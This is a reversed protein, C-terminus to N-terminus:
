KAALYAFRCHIDDSSADKLCVVIPGSSELHFPLDIEDEFSGSDSTRILGIRTPAIDDAKIRVYYTANTSFDDGSLIIRDYSVYVDFPLSADYSTGGPTSTARSPFNPVCLIAGVSLKYPYTLKNISAIDQWDVHYEDAITYITDRAVVTYKWRCVRNAAGASNPLALWVVALILATTLIAAIFLRRNNNTSM